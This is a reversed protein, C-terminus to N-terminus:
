PIILLLSFGIQFTNEFQASILTLAIQRSVNGRCSFSKKFARERWFPYLHASSTRQTDSLLHKCLKNLQRVNNLLYIMATAFGEIFCMSTSLRCELTPYVQRRNSSGCIVNTVVLPPDLTINGSTICGIILFISNCLM